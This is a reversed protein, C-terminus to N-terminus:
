ERSLGVLKLIPLVTRKAFRVVKRPAFRRVPILIMRLGHTILSSVPLAIWASAIGSGGGVDSVPILAGELNLMVFDIGIL